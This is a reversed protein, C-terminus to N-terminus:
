YSKNVTTDNANTNLELLGGVDRAVLTFNMTVINLVEHKCTETKISLSQRQDLLKNVILGSNLHGCQFLLWSHTSSLRRGVYTGVYRGM